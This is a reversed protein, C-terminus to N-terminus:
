RCIGSSFSVQGVYFIKIYKQYKKDPSSIEICVNNITNENITNSFNSNNDKQVSFLSYSKPKLYYIALKQVEVSCDNVCIKSIFDGNNLIVDIDPKSNSVIEAIDFDGNITKYFSEVKNKINKDIYVGFGYYNSDSNLVFGSGRTQMDRILSSVNDIDNTVISRSKNIRYGPTLLIVSLISVVVLVISIEILTFGKLNKNNKLNIM